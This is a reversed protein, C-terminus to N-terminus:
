RISLNWEKICKYIANKGKLKKIFSSEEILETRLVEGTFSGPLNKKVSFTVKYIEGYASLVRLFVTNIEKVCHSTADLILSRYNCKEFM